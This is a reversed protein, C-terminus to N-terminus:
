NGRFWQIIVNLKESLNCKQASTVRCAKDTKCYSSKLMITFNNVNYKKKIIFIQCFIRAVRSLEQSSSLHDCPSARLFKASIFIITVFLSCCFYIKRKSQRKITKGALTKWHFRVTDWVPWIIYVFWLFEM